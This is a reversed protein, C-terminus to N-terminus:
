ELLGKSTLDEVFAQCDALAQVYEVDYEQTLAEAIKEISNNGDCLEWISLGVEDIEYANNRQVLLSKGQVAQFRVNFKKQPTINM